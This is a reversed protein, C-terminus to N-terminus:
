FPQLARRAVVAKAIPRAYREEGYRFFDDALAQESRENLAQAATFGSRPTHGYSMNLQENHMFSFGRGSQLQGQNWGLDFLVKDAQKGAPLHKALVGSLDGFNATVQAGSAPDADITILKIKQAQRGAPLAKKLAASHGGVGYTADVMVDGRKPALAEVVEKVMVSKHEGGSRGSDDPRAPLKHRRTRERGTDGEERRSHRSARVPPLASDRHKIMLVSM